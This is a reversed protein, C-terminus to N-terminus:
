QFNMVMSFQSAMDLFVEEDFESMVAHYLNYQAEALSRAIKKCFEEDESIEQNIDIAMKGLFKSWIRKPICLRVYEDRLLMMFKFNPTEKFDLKAVKESAALFKEKNM